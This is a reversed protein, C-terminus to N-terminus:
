VPGFTLLMLLKWARLSMSRFPVQLVDGQGVDHDFVLDAQAKEEQPGSPCQPLTSDHCGGTVDFMAM